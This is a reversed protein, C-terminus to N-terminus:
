TKILYNLIITPQVNPHASGGGTNSISLTPQSASGDYRASGTGVPSLSSTGAEWNTRLDVTGSHNHSPMEATTLTHTENGGTSGLSDGDVSGTVGLLRNASVGGMDDQGAIVRGRLDPVNFTTSGDGAGYTSGIATFLSAEITRSVDQGFCMLWGSPATSGAFPVIMGSSFLSGAALKSGTITGNAIDDNTITGNTIMSSTVSLNSALYTILDSLAVQVMTGDDNMVMRDANVLTTATAATGGDAVTNLETHTANVAGAINPFTNKIASKILRLHNDADQIGDTSAPNNINLGNIFNATTELPLPKEKTKQPPRQKLAVSLLLLLM